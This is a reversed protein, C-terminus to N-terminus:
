GPPMPPFNAAWMGMWVRISKQVSIVADASATERIAQALDRADDECNAGVVLYKPRRAVPWGASTLRGALAATEHRSGLDVRVEWAARGSRASWQRDQEQFSEHAAPGMNAYEPDQWEGALLDWYELRVGASVAHRAIVERAALVAARADSETAAYLFIHPGSSTV